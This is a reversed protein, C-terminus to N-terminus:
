RRGKIMGTMRSIQDPGGEIKQIHGTKWSRFTSIALAPAPSNSALQPEDRDNYYNHYRDDEDQQHGNESRQLVM